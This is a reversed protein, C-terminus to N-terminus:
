NGEQNNVTWQSYCSVFLSFTRVTWGGQDIEHNCYVEFPLQFGEPQIIYVGSAM